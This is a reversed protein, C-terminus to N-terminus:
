REAARVTMPQACEVLLGDGKFWAGTFDNNLEFRPIRFCGLRGDAIKQSSRNWAEALREMSARPSREGIRSNM